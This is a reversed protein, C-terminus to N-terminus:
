SKTRPHESKSLGFCWFGHTDWVPVASQEGGPGLFVLDEAYGKDIYLDELRSVEGEDQVKAVHLSEQFSAGERFAQVAPHGDNTVVCDSADLLTCFRELAALMVRQWEPETVFFIWRLTHYVWVTDRGFTLSFDSPLDLCLKLSPLVPRRALRKDYDKLSRWFAAHPEGKAFAFDNRLGCAIVEALAPEEEGRELRSIAKLADGSPGAYHILATFDLGM